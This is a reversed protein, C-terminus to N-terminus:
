LGVSAQQGVCAIRAAVFGATEVEVTRRRPAGLHDRGGNRRRRRGGDNTVRWDRAAASRCWGWGLRTALADDGRAGIQLELRLDVIREFSPPLEVTAADIHVERQEVLFEVVELEIREIAEIEDDLGDVAAAVVQIAGVPCRGACRRRCRCLRPPTRLWPKSSSANM